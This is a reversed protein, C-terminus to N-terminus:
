GQVVVRYASASPASAFRLTITNVSTHEIDVDVEEYTGSNLYVQATVDRTNLNHTIVYSTASTTLTEAYKRVVVATDISVTDAAVSIGTGAGVDITNGTKTLGNGAVAAALTRPCVIVAVPVCVAADSGSPNVACDDRGLFVYRTVVAAVVATAPRLVLLRWTTLLAAYRTTIIPACAVPVAVAVRLHNMPRALLM